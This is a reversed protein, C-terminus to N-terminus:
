ILVTCKRESYPTGQVLPSTRPSFLMSEDLQHRQTSCVSAPKTHTRAHVTGGDVQRAEKEEEKQQVKHKKKKKREKGRSRSSM